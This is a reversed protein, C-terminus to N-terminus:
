VVVCPEWKGCQFCEMFNLSKEKINRPNQFWYNQKSEVTIEVYIKTCTCHQVYCKLKNVCAGMKKM